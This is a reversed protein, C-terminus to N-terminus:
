SQPTEDTDNQDAAPRKAAQNRKNMQDKVLKTGGRMASNVGQRILQRTIMNIIQQLM